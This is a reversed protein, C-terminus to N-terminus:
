GGLALIKARHLVFSVSPRRCSNTYCWCRLRRRRAPGVGSVPAVEHPQCGAVPEFGRGALASCM